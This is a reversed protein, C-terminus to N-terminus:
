HEVDIPAGAFYDSTAYVPSAHCWMCEHPREEPPPKDVGSFFQRDCSKCVLYLPVPQGVLM